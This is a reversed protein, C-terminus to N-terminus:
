AADDELAYPLPLRSAAPGDPTGLRLPGETLAVLRLVTLLVIGGDPHPAARVVEGIPTEPDAGFVPQGPMARDAERASLLAMRRNPKGLYHMRAVVEQGPYCGKKFSVGGIRELNTMQPVFAEVTEPFVEPLAALVDLLEHSATGAPAAHVNLRQWLKQMAELEGHIEFRAPVGPLRIATLGAGTRCDDTGSPIVGLADSLLTEARPGSLSFSAFAEGASELTVKSRLIFMRLRKLVPEVQPRPLTLYYVGERKFLRMLALMRGKPTNLSTLQSHTDSVKQVDNSLMNQLFASADEGMVAILGRHGLDSIIDGNLTLSLEQAPNGFHAVHEGDPSWEAGHRQLFSKWEPKM